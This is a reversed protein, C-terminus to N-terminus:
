RTLLLRLVRDSSVNAQALVAVAAQQQLRSTVLRTTEQAFDTDLIRSRAAQLQIENESQSNILSELRNAASGIETRTTALADLANDASSIAASAGAATTVDIGSLAASVDTANIAVNLTEGNPGVAFNGTFTGDLLNRGNFNTQGIVRDIEQRLQDIEGQIAQRDSASLTDNAAQVSLERIRQTLEGVGTLAADATQTVSVADNANQIARSTGEIQSTLRVSIALGAPDDAASNIRLGTAIRRASAAVASSANLLARQTELSAVFNSIPLVM